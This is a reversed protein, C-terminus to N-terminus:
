IILKLKSLCVGIDMVPGRSSAVGNAVRDVSAGNANEDANGM